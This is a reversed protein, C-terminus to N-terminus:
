GKPKRHSFLFKALHDAEQEGDMEVMDQMDYYHVKGVPEGKPQLVFQCEDHASDIVPIAKVGYSRELATVIRNMNEAVLGVQYQQGASKHVEKIGGMSM